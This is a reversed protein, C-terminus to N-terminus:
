RVASAILTTKAPASLAMEEKETRSTPLQAGMAGNGSWIQKLFYRNGYKNFVLACASGTTNSGVPHRLIRLGTRADWSSIQIMNWSASQSFTYEGAPVRQNGVMFDFPINAKIAITNDAIAGVSMLAAIAVAMWLTKTTM